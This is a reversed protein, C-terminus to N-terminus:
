KAFKKRKVKKSSEIEDLVMGIEEVSVMLYMIVMVPSFLGILIVMIAKYSMYESFKDILVMDKSYVFAFITGLIAFMIEFTRRTVSKYM